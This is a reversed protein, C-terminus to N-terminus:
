LGVQILASVWEKLSIALEFNYANGYLFINSFMIACLSWTTFKINPTLQFCKQSIDTPFIKLKKGLSNIVLINWVIARQVM